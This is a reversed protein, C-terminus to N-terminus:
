RINENNEDLKVRFESPYADHIYIDIWEEQNENTYITIEEWDDVDRYYNTEFKSGVEFDKKPDLERYKMRDYKNNKNM